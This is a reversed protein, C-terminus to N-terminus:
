MAYSELYGCATCRYTAIKVTSEPIKITGPMWFSEDPTGKAWMAVYNGGGSQDLLFGKEMDAKCRLCNLNLEM